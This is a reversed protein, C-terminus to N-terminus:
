LETFRFLKYRWEGTDNEEIKVMEYKKDSHNKLFLKECNEYESWEMGDSCVFYTIDSKNIETFFVSFPHYEVIKIMKRDLIKEIWYWFIAKGFQDQQTYVNYFVINFDNISNLKSDTLIKKSVVESEKLGGSYLPLLGDGKKYNLINTGLVFYIGLILYGCYKFVLWHESFRWIVYTLALLWWPFYLKVYFRNVAEGGGMWVVGFVSIMVSFIFLSKIFFPNKKRYDFITLWGVGGYVIIFFIGILWIDKTRFIQWFSVILIQQCNQWLDKIGLSSKTVLSLVQFQDLWNESYTINVWVGFSVLSLLTILVGVWRKKDKTVRFYNILGFVFLVPFVTLVSYHVHLTSFLALIFLIYIKWSRGQWSKLFLWVILTLLSTLLSTHFTLKSLYIFYWNFCVMLALILSYKKSMFYGGVAYMGVVLLVSSLAYLIGVGIPSNTLLWAAAFVYYIFFSKALLTGGGVSGRATSIKDGFHTMHYAFTMDEAPDGDWWLMTTSLKYFRLFIAVLVILVLTIGIWNKKVINVIKKIGM